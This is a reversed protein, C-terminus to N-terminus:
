RIRMFQLRSANLVVSLSSLAMAAGAIIPSLLMHFIPYFVGAAVLIASCNYFFAGWLNQKINSLTMRSLSIADCVAHLSNRMLTIEASEIAVDAGSGMAFGVHAKALAAADNVGDGVMGVIEGKAQLESLKNAKDIPLVDSLVEDVNVIKGTKQATIANDGTLIIVKLGMQHFRKIADQSDVKIPDEVVITGAFQQDVALYLGAQEQSITINYKELLRSNGLLVRQGNINGQVGLGSIAEFNKVELSNLSKAKAANLIAEALPHESNVELSAALQLIKNEDFGAVAVIQTVAPHGQTITGTKDLVITTLRCAQQLAEGNRILIGKEAAKGVSIMVSIPAALGLACPCAIILVTMGTALMYASIPKIGVNFWVLATIIALCLITPVFYSSVKDALRTISPKSHQAVKVAKVIQSLATDSGVKNASFLFTGAKNLTGAIVKDGFKKSVPIAEGTLMSEDLYSSGETIVGDVAIKEGPRVRVIDGVVVEEIAIDMEKGNRVVRATKPQLGMLRKIAESTKGRAHTELAQGFNVFGLIFVSADFYLDRKGATSFQPFIVIVMSYIWAALTGVAILTDMNANHALFGKWGNIYTELSVTMMVLLTLIGIILWIILGLPHGLQPLVGIWNLILIWLGWIIALASKLFLIYLHKSPSSNGPSKSLIECCTQM